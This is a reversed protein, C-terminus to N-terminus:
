AEHERCYDAWRTVRKCAVCFRNPYFRKSHIERGLRPVDPNIVRRSPHPKTM